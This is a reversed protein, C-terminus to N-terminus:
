QIQRDIKYSLSLIKKFNKTIKKYLNAFICLAIGAVHIIPM